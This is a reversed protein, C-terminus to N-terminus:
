NNFKCKYSTATAQIDSSLFYKAMLTTKTVAPIAMNIALSVMVITGQNKETGPFEKNSTTLYLVGASKKIIPAKNGNVLIHGNETLEINLSSPVNNEKWNNKVSQNNLTNVQHYNMETESTCAIKVGSFVQTSFLLLIVTFLPKM